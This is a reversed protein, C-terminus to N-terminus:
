ARKPTKEKATRTRNPHDVGKPGEPGFRHHLFVEYNNEARLAVDKDRAPDPVPDGPIRPRRQGTALRHVHARKNRTLAPPAYRYDEGRTLMHWVLVVLKRAVATLAVNYPKRRRLRLFFAHFPGPAKVLQHAVEICVSRAHSRGRRSIHGSHAKLGSQYVSPNLGFYSVLKGPASFRRVDSIAAKLGVASTLSLGPISLLRDIDPDGHVSLALMRDAAAIEL